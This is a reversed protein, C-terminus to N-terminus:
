KEGEEGLWYKRRCTDCDYEPCCSYIGLTYPCILIVGDNSMKTKPYLKLFNYQRIIEPNEKSWKEVFKELVEWNEKTLDKSFWISDYYESSNYNIGVLDDILDVGLSKEIKHFRRLQKFFEKNDM